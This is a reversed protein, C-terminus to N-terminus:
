ETSWVVAGDFIGFEGEKKTGADEIWTIIASINQGGQLKQQEPPSRLPSEVSATSRRPAGADVILSEHHASSPESRPSNVDLVATTDSTAVCNAASTAAAAASAAKAVTYAAAAAPSGRRADITAKKRLGIGDEVISAQIFTFM